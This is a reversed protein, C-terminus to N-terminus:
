VDVEMGAGFSMIEVNEKEMDVVVVEGREVFKPVLIITCKRGGEAEVVDMAFEKQNGIVVYDPTAKLVFPDETKMPYAWLTDPATPAIIRWRLMRGVMELRQETSDGEIYRFM